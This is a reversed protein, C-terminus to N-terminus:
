LKKFLGSEFRDEQELNVHGDTQGDLVLPDGNEFEASVIRLTGTGAFVEFPAISRVSGPNPNRGGEKPLVEWFFVKRGRLYSYAGPYPHTVARVLADIDGADRNWDIEGDSPRRGPYVTAQLPDQAIAPARGERILPHYQSVLAAAEPIMKKFLSLATERADIPIKKQGVLDGADAKKVMHHLTVGSAEERNLIVWNAPCRGRYRPLYSGHLNFAGLRPLCLIEGGILNRFYFSYIVDPAWTRIREVLRDRPLDEAYELPLDHARALEAVSDFWLNEDPADRHTIVGAIEDGSALLAK